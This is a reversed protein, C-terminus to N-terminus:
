GDAIGRPELQELAEEIMVVIERAAHAVTEIPQGTVRPGLSREAEHDIPIGPHEDPDCAATDRITVRIPERPRQRNM